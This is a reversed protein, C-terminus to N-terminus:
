LEKLFINRFHVQSASDHNQLGVYGELAWDWIKGRPEMDWDIVQEGNLEVTIHPGICTIKYHNWQGAAKAAKKSPAVADYVAGTHEMDDSAGDIQIDFAHNFYDEYIPMNPIRYFIGSNDRDQEVLFDLELVFDKFKKPSYWFLGTGGHTTLIGTKKDLTFHGPGYHNWGHKDYNSSGAWSGLLQTYGKYYTVSDIFEIIERIAPLPDHADEEKEYEITLYGAYNQSTLEALIDRGNAVGQGFPVENGDLNGIEDLDKLHVDHIRGNLLRMGDVPVIGSRLWHGTDACAGIRRSRGEIHSLVVEPRAYKNPESHNHIAVRLGYEEALKDIGAWDDWTPEMVVVEIGMEKAFSFLGGVEAEGIKDVVGYAVVRIGLRDLEANVKTIQAETMQYHFLADPDEGPLGLKQDYYAEVNQIGLEHLKALTEIFTFKRFTWAQVAIPFEKIRVDELATTPFDVAMHKTGGTSCAVSILMGLGLSSWMIPRWNIRRASM